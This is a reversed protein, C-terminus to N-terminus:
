RWAGPLMCRELPSRCSILAQSNGGNRDVIHIQGTSSSFYALWNGDSSWAPSFNNGGTTFKRAGSGDANAVVIQYSNDAQKSYYAIKTGDPSVAPSGNERNDTTLQTPGTADENLRWIEFAGTLNSVFYIWKGYAVGRFSERGGSGARAPFFESRRGTFDVRFLSEAGNTERAVYVLNQSDPSFSPSSIFAHGFSFKETGSGDTIRLFDTGGLPGFAYAIKSGDRSWTFPAANTSSTIDGPQPGLSKFPASTQDSFKYNYLNFTQNAPEYAVYAIIGKAAPVPPLQTATPTGRTVATAARTGPANTPTPSPIVVAVPDLAGTVNVFTAMVWSPKDATPYALMLWKGDESKGIVVATTDKAMRGAIAYKDGPGTRLNTQQKATAQPPLPTPTATPPVPTATPVATPPVPTPSPAPTPPRPTPTASGCGVTLVIAALAAILLLTNRLKM